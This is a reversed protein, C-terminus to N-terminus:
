HQANQQQQSQVYMAEFNVPQLMLPPFTGRAALSEVAERAYPFLITPCMIMLVQRLQEGEMGKVLFAGAQQVEILFATEEGLKATITITLVAEFVDGDIRDAKTNLDVHVQPQWQKTFTKAGLPAEFSLDKIYIRQVAFQQEQGAASPQSDSM